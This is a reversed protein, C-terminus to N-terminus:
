LRAGEEPGNALGPPPGSAKGSGRRAPPRKGQAKRAKPQRLRAPSAAASAGPLTRAPGYVPALPRAPGKVRGAHSRGNLRVCDGQGM